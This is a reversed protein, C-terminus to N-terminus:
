FSRFNSEENFFAFSSLSLFTELNEKNSSSFYSIGGLLVGILLDSDLENKNYSSEGTTGWIDLLYLSEEDYEEHLYLILLLLHVLSISSTVQDM